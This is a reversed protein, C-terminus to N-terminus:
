QAWGQMFYKRSIELTGSSIEITKGMRNSEEIERCQENFFAKKDRRAIRQLEANLQIHSRRERKGKADRREDGIHLDEESLRKAKKCKNKKPITKTM